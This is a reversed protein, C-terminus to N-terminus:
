EAVWDAERGGGTRRRRDANWGAKQKERAGGSRKKELDRHIVEVVWDKPWPRAALECVFAVSRHHGLACNCGVRLTVGKGMIDEGEDDQVKEKGKEEENGADDEDEGIGEDVGVAVTGSDEKGEDVVGSVDGSQRPRKAEWMVIRREMEERIEAEVVSLKTVFKEEL